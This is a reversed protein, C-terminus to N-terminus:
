ERVSLKFVMNNDEGAPARLVSQCKNYVKMVRAETKSRVEAAPKAEEVWCDLWHRVNTGLNEALDDLSPFLHVMSDVMPAIVFEIFGIQSNPRSVKDRDNLMQVPLGAAKEADGQAFFEDVCLHALRQALHWPKMPNGVDAGHLLLNLTLQLNGQLVEVLEETHRATSHEPDKQADFAESNMQYLLVLEKMMDNHKVVDTHLIAFIIGKRMEKYLDKDCGAFVNAQPDSVVHFLSSCHMMELPSRDNYQVALEHSTEILYQNNVGLHGLDHGVAAVLLWFQSTEPLFRDAEILRMNRSVVYQVDLAHAFNHFPNAQYQSECITVFKVIHTEQVNQRVWARSGESTLLIHVGVPSALDQPLDLTMFTSTQLADIIEVPIISNSPPLNNSPVAEACVEDGGEAPMKSGRSPRRKQIGSPAGQMWNLRTKDEETMDEREVVEDKTNMLHAIAALKAVVRELLAFESSQENDDYNEEKDGDDDSDEEEMGATYQFIEKCRQRVVSLMRELPHLAIVTISNSTVLGFSIMVFIIFVILGSNSGSEMQKPTSMDFATFFGNHNMIRIFGKRGPEAFSSNFIFAMGASAPNCILDEGNGPIIYTGSCAWFPGYAFNAYFGAYANLERDLRTRALQIETGNPVAQALLGSIEHTNVYLLETWTAMSDDVEPYTFMGFIPLVVVICITLFAVRTSLVNTLQNSIRSAMKVDSDQEAGRIFPLHRLLKMVRTLRGARAGLKTARAARVVIINEEAGSGQNDPETASKALLFTIDFIMSATGLLDMWFFFSFVYSPDTLTLGIFEFAFILLVMTLILDLAFDTEVGCMIFLDSLFLALFLCIMAVVTFVQGRILTRTGKALRSDHWGSNHLFRRWGGVAVNVISERKAAKNAGAGGDEEEDDETAAPVEPIALSTTIPNVKAM